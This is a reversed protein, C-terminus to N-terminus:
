RFILAVADVERNHSDTPLAEAPPIPFLNSVPMSAFYTQCKEWATPTDVKTDPKTTDRDLRPTLLNRVQAENAGIQHADSFFSFMLRVVDHLAALCHFHM